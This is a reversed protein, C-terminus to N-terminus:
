SYSGDVADENPGLDLIDTEPDPPRDAPLVAVIYRDPNHIQVYRGEARFGFRGSVPRHGGFYLASEAEEPPLYRRLMRVVSGAEAEDNNTWSLGYVVEPRNRYDIVEEPEFLRAPEAHSILFHRGVTLLPMRKEAYYIRALVGPGYLKKLYDAVMAGENAFKVFPHNGGGSENSVNEHNGKLLHVRGPFTIKVASVMLLASLSEAMEADMAAHTRYGGIHEQLAEAWRGRVRGEGHFYDGVCVVQARGGALADIVSLGPTLDMSFVAGVLGPRAHIDPLLVTPQDPDLRVLGGPIGNADKPRIESDESSLTNVLQEFFTSLTEAGPVEAATRLRDLLERLRDFHM